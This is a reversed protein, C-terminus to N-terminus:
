NMGKRANTFIEELVLELNDKPRGFPDSNAVTGLCRDMITKSADLRLRENPSHLAIHIVSSTAAALNQQLLRRATLSPDGEDLLSTETALSKIAEDPDWDDYDNPPNM